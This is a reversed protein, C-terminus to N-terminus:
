LRMCFCSIFWCVICVGHYLVCVILGVITFVRVIKKKFFSVFCFVVCFCLVRCVVWVFDRHVFLFCLVFLCCLVVFCAVFCVCHLVLWLM